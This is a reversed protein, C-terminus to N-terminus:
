GDIARSEVSWVMMALDLIWDVPVDDQRPKSHPPALGSEALGALCGAMVSNRLKM